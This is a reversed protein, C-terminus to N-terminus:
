EKYADSFYVEANKMLEKDLEKMQKKQEDTFEFDEKDFATVLASIEEYNNKM